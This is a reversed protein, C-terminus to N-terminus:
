RSCVWERVYCRGGGEECATLAKASAVDRNVDWGFAWEGNRGTAVAGCANWFVEVETCGSGCIQRARKEAEPITRQGAVRGTAGSAGIAIAGFCREYGCSGSQAAGGVVLSLAAALVGAKIGM